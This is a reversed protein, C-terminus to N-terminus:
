MIKMSMLEDVYLLLDCKNYKILKIIILIMSMSVLEVPINRSNQVEIITYM